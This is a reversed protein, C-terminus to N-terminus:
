LSRLFAVLDLKDQPALGLDFRTNYFDIVDGLTAASGNHFYPPRAALGRLVPGKVKGIDACKGSIMARGPDLTQVVAGTARCRLTFLPLDSTRRAADSVGIDLPLSVSHDGANPSDHCTTCTGTIVPLGLRDNLGGVQTISIPRTNFIKEGRAVSARAETRDNHQYSDIYEWGKFIDFAEPNFPVGTPNLGLPDNIGIFFPQTSLTGPGGLAGAADLRGAADDRSQAAFIGLQFDVIQQLQQDTPASAAQAHGLTANKAQTKLDDAMSQGAVTERGDWMVTSLFTINATPLPRRYMSLETSTSCHYPDDISVVSFEANDPLPLAIRILGKTLLLSYAARRAPVSSVDANSCNAGDNLRFIPDLGRSSKFREQLHVPTVSWADSAQHCTFCSRGNTGLVQFFPNRMDISGNTSFTTVSGSANRFTLPTAHREGNRGSDARLDSAALLPLVMATIALVRRLSAACVARPQPKKSQYM